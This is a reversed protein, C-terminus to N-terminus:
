SVEKRPDAKDYHGILVCNTALTTASDLTLANALPSGSGNGQKAAELVPVGEGSRFGLM